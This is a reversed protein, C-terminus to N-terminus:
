FNEDFSIKGSLVQKERLHSNKRFRWQSPDTCLKIEFLQAYYVTWFNIKQQNFADAKRLYAKGVM